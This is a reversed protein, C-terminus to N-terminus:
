YLGRQGGVCSEVWKVERSDAYRRFSQGLRWLYPLSALVPTAWTRNTSCTSGVDPAFHHTYACVLFGLNIATYYLSCFQDGLWFDRFQFLLLRQTELVCTYRYLQM